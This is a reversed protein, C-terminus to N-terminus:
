AKVQLRIDVGSVQLAQIRRTALCVDLHGPVFIIAQRIASPIAGQPNSSRSRLMVLLEGLTHGQDFCSIRELKALLKGKSIMQLANSSLSSNPISLSRLHPVEALIMEVVFKTLHSKIRLELLHPAGSLLPFFPWERPTTSAKMPMESIELHRLNPTVLPHIFLRSGHYRHVVFFELKPLTTPSLKRLSAEESPSAEALWVTCRILSTCRRLLLHAELTSLIFRDFRLETLRESAVRTHPALILHQYGSVRQLSFRRLLPAHKFSALMTELLPQTSLTRFPLNYQQKEPIQLSIDEVRLLYPHILRDFPLNCIAPRPTEFDWGEIRLTVLESGTRALVQEGMRTLQRIMSANECQKYNVTVRSWLQPTQLAVQRWRRCVFTLNWPAMRPRYYDQPLRIQGLLFIFINFLIEPPVVAFPNALTSRCPQMDRVSRTNDAPLTHDVFAVRSSSLSATGMDHNHNDPILAPRTSLVQLEILDLNRDSLYATHHPHTILPTITSGQIERRLPPLLFV